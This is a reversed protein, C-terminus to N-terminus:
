KVSEIRKLQRDLIHCRFQLQVPVRDLREVLLVHFGL